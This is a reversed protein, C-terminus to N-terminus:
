AGKMRCNEPDFPPTSLVKACIEDGLIRVRLNGAPLDAEPKFYALALVKDTRPGYAASTVIGVTRDDQMVTHAYFPAAEKTDIELLEMSWATAADKRRLLADRGTFERGETKV